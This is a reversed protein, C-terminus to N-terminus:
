RKGKKEKAPKGPKPGAKAAKAEAKARKLAATKEAKQKKLVLKEEKLAQKIMLKEEKTLEKKPKAKLHKILLARENEQASQPAPAPIANAAVAVPLSETQRVDNRTSVRGSEEEPIPNMPGTDYTPYNEAYRNQAMEEQSIPNGYHTEPMDNAHYNNYGYNNDQVVVTDDHEDKIKDYQERAKMGRFCAQIRVAAKEEDENIDEVEALRQDIYQDYQGQYAAETAPDQGNEYPQKTTVVEHARDSPGCCSCFGM